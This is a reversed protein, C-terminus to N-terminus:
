WCCRGRARTRPAVISPAGCCRNPPSSSPRGSSSGPCSRTSPPLRRRSSCCRAPSAAPWPSPPSAPWADAGPRRDRRPLRGGLRRLGALDRHHQHHQRHAGSLRPGAPDPVLDPQRRRGRRQLHRRGRGGPRDARRPLRARRALTRSWRRPAGGRSPAPTGPGCWRDWTRSSNQRDACPQAAKGRESRSSLFGATKATPGTLPLSHSTRVSDGGHAAPGENTPEIREGAGPGGPPRELRFVGEPRATPRWRARGGPGGGNGRRDRPRGPPPWSTGCGNDISFLPVPATTRGPRSPPIGNRTACRSPRVHPMTLSVQRSRRLSPSVGASNWACQRSTWPGSIARWGSRGGRAASRAAGAGARRSRPSSSGPKSPTVTCHNSLM